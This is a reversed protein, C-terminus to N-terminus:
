DVRRFRRASIFQFVAGLLFFAGFILMPPGGSKFTLLGGALFMMGMLAMWLATRSAAGAAKQYGTKSRRQVELLSQVEAECRGRCALGNDLDAACGPCLGRNCNKCIAVADAEPHYFCKM